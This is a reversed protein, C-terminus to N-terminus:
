MTKLPYVGYSRATMWLAEINDEPYPMGQDPGAVYGGNPALINMVRKVEGRVEDTTGTMLLHSDVAGKLAMKGECKDKILALDNARAQVPNLITVGLNALDEVVDQICGCSHFEIIKDERVLSEFCRSYQPVFFERFSQPSIMLGRQHGLDESFGIGDVGIELYRKFVCIDFDAIESLLRKLEKPHTFLTQMFKEMGMLAWAREFMFYTLAGFILNNNRDIKTLLKAHEESFKLRDPDPIIYEDLCELSSLPSKKPFPVMDSRTIKWGVGWADTWNGMKFNGEFEFQVAISENGRPVYRPGDFYIARLFNEKASM